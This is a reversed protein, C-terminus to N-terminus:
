PSACFCISPLCFLEAERFTEFARFNNPLIAASLSPHPQCVSSASAEVVPHSLVAFSHAKFPFSPPPVAQPRRFPRSLQKNGPASFRHARSILCTYGTAVTEPATGSNNRTHSPPATPPRAWLRRQPACSPSSGVGRANKRTPLSCIHRIIHFLCSDLDLFVM